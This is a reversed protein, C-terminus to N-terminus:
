KALKYLRKLEKLEEELKQRDYKPISWVRLQEETSKILSAIGEKSLREMDKQTLGFM